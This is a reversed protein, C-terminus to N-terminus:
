GAARVLRSRSTPMPRGARKAAPVFVERPVAAMAAILRRDTVDNARVQSDIMAARAAELDM